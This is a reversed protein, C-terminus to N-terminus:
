VTNPLVEAARMQATEQSKLSALYNGATTFVQGFSIVFAYQRAANYRAFAQSRNTTTSLKILVIITNLPSNRAGAVARLRDSVDELVRSWNVWGEFAVKCSRRYIFRKRWWFAFGAAM